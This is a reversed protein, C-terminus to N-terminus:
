IVFGVVLSERADIPLARVAAGLIRWRAEQQAQGFWTEKEQM